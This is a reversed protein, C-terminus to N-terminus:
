YFKGSKISIEPHMPRKMKHLMLKVGNKRLTPEMISLISQICDNLKFMTKKSDNRRSYGLLSDVIKNMRKIAIPVHQLMEDHFEQDGYKKPLMDVFMKLTMLPNRIEHAVGAVLQGLAGMKEQLALKRQLMREESRDILTIMFGNLFNNRENFPIIQFLISKQNGEEEFEVEKSFFEISSSQSQEYASFVRKMVPLCLIESAQVMREDGVNLISRAHHNISTLKNENDFTIIGAFIHNLINEKFQDAKSLEMQQMQLQDNVLELASTRKKVEDKLRKNWLFVLSLALLFFVMLAILISIWNRLQKLREDFIGGFWRSHIEAYEGNAKMEIVASNIMELLTHDNPYIAASFEASTGTLQDLIEYQREVNNEKMYYEATWKNTLMADGRKDLLLAFADKTNLALAIETDRVNKMMSIAADDEQMIIVKDRLDTLTQVTHATKKPLIFTESIMFYSDSFLFQSNLSSSYKIGMIADIEGKKLLEVAKYSPMPIFEFTVKEKAAIKKFLDVSFGTFDGEANIYSFPPLYQDGVIRYHKKQNTTEGAAFDPFFLILVFIFSISLIKRRNKLM